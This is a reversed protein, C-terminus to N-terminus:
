WAHRWSGHNFLSPYPGDTVGGHDPDAPCTTDWRSLVPSVSARPLPGAEDGPGIWEGGLNQGSGVVKGMQFTGGGLWGGGRPVSSVECFGMMGDGM